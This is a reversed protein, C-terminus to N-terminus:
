YRFSGVIEANVYNIFPMYDTEGKVRALANVIKVLIRYANDSAKRSAWKSVTLTHVHENAAKLNTVFPTLSLTEVEM